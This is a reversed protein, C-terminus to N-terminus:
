NSLSRFIIVLKILKKNIKEKYELDSSYYVDIDIGVIQYNLKSKLLTDKLIILNDNKQHFILFDLEKLFHTAM